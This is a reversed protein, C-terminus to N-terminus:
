PAGIAWQNLDAIYDDPFGALTAGRVIRELYWPEPRGPADDSAIYVLTPGFHPLTWTAKVYEGEGVGEYGDLAQEDAATLSWVLGYVVSRTDSSDTDPIVTAWGARIIRFRWGPVVMTGLPHATPCREAMQPTWLNSGYALYPRRAGDKTDDSGSETM